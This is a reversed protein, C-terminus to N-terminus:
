AGGRDCRGVAAAAEGVGESDCWLEMYEIHHYCQVASFRGNEQLGVEGVQRALRGTPCQLGQIRRKVINRRNNVTGLDGLGAGTAEGSFRWLGSRWAVSKIYRL